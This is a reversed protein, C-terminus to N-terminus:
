DFTRRQPEDWVRQKAETVALAVMRQAQRYRAVAEPTGQSLKDGFTEKRLWVAEKVMLTWWPMRPNSGKTVGKVRIGCSEAAAEAIFAKFILWETGLRWLSALSVGISTLTSPWASLPHRCPRPMVWNVTVVYGSKDLPKGWWRVWGVVLHHDSTVMKFDRDLEVARKCQNRPYDAKCFHWRTTYILSCIFSLVCCRREWYVRLYFLHLLSSCIMVLLNRHSNTM